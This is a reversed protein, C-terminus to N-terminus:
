CYDCVYSLMCCIRYFWTEAFKPITLVHTHLLFDSSYYCNVIIVIPFLIKFHFLMFSGMLTWWVYSYGNPLNSEQSLINAPYFKEIFIGPHLCWSTWPTNSSSTRRYPFHQVYFLAPPSGVIKCSCISPLLFIEWKELCDGDTTTALWLNEIITLSLTWTLDLDFDLSSSKSSVNFESHWWWHLFYETDLDLWTLAWFSM